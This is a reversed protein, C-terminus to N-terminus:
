QSALERLTTGIVEKNENTDWAEQTEWNIELSDTTQEPALDISVYAGDLREKKGQLETEYVKLKWQDFSDATTLIGFCDYPNNVAETASSFTFVPIYKEISFGDPSLADEESVVSRWGAPEKTENSELTTELMKLGYDHHEHGRFLAKINNKSFYKEIYPTTINWGRFHDNYFEAKNGSLFDCWNFGKFTLNSFNYITRFQIQDESQLFPQPDFEKEIGGHSCQIFNDGSKLYLSLPLFEFLRLFKDYIYEKPFKGEYYYTDGELEYKFGYESTVGKEEHNGRLLIVNNYNTLKLQMLTYWVETGYRGRDVYDGLFVMYFNKQKIKFNNDLYGLIILRWLSRLLSHLSGHLDGIFCIKSGVPVIMKQVYPYGYEMLHTDFNFFDEDPFFLNENHQLWCQKNSLDSQRFQNAFEEMVNTLDNSTLFTQFHYYTQEPFAFDYEPLNQFCAETWKTITNYHASASTMRIACINLMLFSLILKTLSNKISLM